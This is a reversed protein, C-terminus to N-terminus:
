TIYAVVQTIFTTYSVGQTICAATLYYVGCGAYYMGGPVARVAGAGFMGCHDCVGVGALEDPRSNM